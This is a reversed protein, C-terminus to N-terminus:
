TMKRGAIAAKTRENAMLRQGSPSLIAGIVGALAVGGGLYHMLNIPESLLWWALFSSAVPEARLVLPPINAPLWRFSWAMLFVGVGGPILSTYVVLLLDRGTVPGINWGAAATYVTVGLASIAFISWLLLVTDEIHNRAIKLLVLYLSWSVVSVVAMAMGAPNGEVGASGGYVVLAAGAVALVTWARFRNGPREGLLPIAILSVILPILSSLLVVDTVSTLKMSTFFVPQSFGLALGPWVAWRLQSLPPRVGFWVARVAAVAGLLVVGTWLRWFSFQVGALDSAQVSILGTSMLLVSLCIAAMPFNSRAAGLRTRGGALDPLRCDERLYAYPAPPPSSLM